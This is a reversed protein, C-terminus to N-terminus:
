RDADECVVDVGIVIGDVNICVVGVNAMDVDVDARAIWPVILLDERSCEWRSVGELM